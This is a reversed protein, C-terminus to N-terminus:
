RSRIWRDDACRLALKIEEVTPTRLFARSFTRGVEGLHHADSFTLTPFDVGTAEFGNGRHFPSLEVADLALDQPIFGLQSIVSFVTRDVHAAIALGNRNHIEAVIAHIPLDTAGILLRPNVDEVNGEFDVVWQHGFADPSNAGHLNQYILEQFDELYDIEDFFALVHVEEQSTVEVGGLVEIGLPRAARIVAPVNEMSNHDTIGIVNIGREKASQLIRQPIM